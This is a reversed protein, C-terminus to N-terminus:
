NKLLTVDGMKIFPEGNMYTGRVKWIYVGPESMQGKFYGDWGVSIDNTEFMLVGIKSFIKLQFESVGSFVPHFVQASEDSKSSYYGGTPGGPNPIFANPFNVYYNYGSFANEVVLSDSCGYESLAILMVNYNGPKSYEYGPEFVESTSGDGFFWKFSAANLSYNIFKVENNEQGKEDQRIEFRAVPRPHVKIETFSIFRAGDSRKVLLGIKYVGEVDFIWEPDKADSYGGDGFTWQYAVFLGKKCSFKVKLPSCGETVSLEILDDIVQSGRMLKNLDASGNGFLGKISFIDRFGTDRIEYEQPFRKEEAKVSSREVQDIINIEANLKESSNSQKRTNNGAPQEPLIFSKNTDPAQSSNDTPASPINEEKESQNLTLILVSTVALVLLSIYYINIRAPNFRLFEKRGTKRMLDNRASASPIVEVNELKDRFLSGISDQERNKM